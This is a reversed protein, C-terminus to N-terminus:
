PAEDNHSGGDQPLAYRDPNAPDIGALAAIRGALGLPANSGDEPFPTSGFSKRPDPSRLENSPVFSVGPAGIDFVSAQSKNGVTSRGVPSAPWDGVGSTGFIPPPVIWHPMPEDTSLGPPRNPQSPPAPRTTGAAFSSRNGFRDGLSEKRAPSSVVRSSLYRIPPAGSDFVSTKSQDGGSGGASSSDWSGFRSVFSDQLAPSRINRSSPVAPVRVVTSAAPFTGAFYGDPSYVADPQFAPTGPRDGWASLPSNGDSRISPEVEGNRVMSNFWGGLASPVGTAIVAPLSPRREASSLDGLGTSPVINGNAVSAALGIFNDPLGNSALGFATRFRDAPMAFAPNGRFSDKPITAPPAFAPTFYDRFGQAIFPVNKPNNGTNPDAAKPNKWWNYWGGGNMLDEQSYGAAAGILGLAYSAARTFVEAFPGNSQGNYTRQLEWPGGQGFNFLMAAPKIARPLSGLSKGFAMAAAPDFTLPFWIKNGKGDVIVNGFQDVLTKAQVNFLKTSSNDKDTARQTFTRFEQAM